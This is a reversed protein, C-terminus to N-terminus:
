VELYYYFYISQINFSMYSFSFYLLASKQRDKNRFVGATSPLSKMIADICTRVSDQVPCQETLLLELMQRSLWKPVSIKFISGVVRMDCSNRRGSAYIGAFVCVCM